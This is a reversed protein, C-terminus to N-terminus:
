KDPSAAAAATIAEILADAFLNGQLRYGAMTLHIRDTNITRDAIWKASAGKGGAIEYWDYLPINNDAAYDVIVNRLRRVDNNVVFSTRRRRRRRRTTKKRQCEQPTVLLLGAGPNALRIERVLADITTRFESDSVNNFAENTGLSLIILDPEFYEAINDGVGGIMSYTAFTAGNNGIVHYALGTNGLFANAGHLTTVGASHFNVEVSSVGYPLNVTVHGRAGDLLYPLSEGGSMVSVVSLSDGTYYFTLGDFKEKTTISIPFDRTTPSVGIGTFSMTTPWPLKLLRSQRFGCSGDFTYDVPQNTGALRFPIILGRGRLHNFHCGLRNRTVATGMDAQQHSDGIHVISVPISDAMAFVAGMDSWDADNMRIHNAGVNIYKPYEMRQLAAQSGLEVTPNERTASQNDDAAAMFPVALALLSILPKNM